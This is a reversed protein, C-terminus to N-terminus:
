GAGLSLRRLFGGGLEALDGAEAAHGGLARGLRAAAAAVAARESRRIFGPADHPPRLAAALAAEDATAWPDGHRRRAIPRAAGDAVAGLYDEFAQLAARGGAAGLRMAFASWVEARREPGELWLRLAAVFRAADAPMGALTIAEVVPPRPDFLSM